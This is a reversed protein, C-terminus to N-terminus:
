KEKKRYCLFTNYKGRCSAVMCTDAGSFEEKLIELIQDMVLRDSGYKTNDEIKLVVDWQSLDINSREKIDEEVQKLLSKNSM